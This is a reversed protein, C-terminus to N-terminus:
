AARRNSRFSTPHRAILLRVLTGCRTFLMGILRKQDEVLDATADNMVMATLEDLESIMADIRREIKEAPSQGLAEITQRDMDLEAMRSM